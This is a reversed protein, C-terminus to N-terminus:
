PRMNTVVSHYIVICRYTTQVHGAEISELVLDADLMAFDCALVYVGYSIIAMHM